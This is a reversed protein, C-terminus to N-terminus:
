ELVTVIIHFNLATSAWLHPGLGGPVAYDPFGEQLLVLRHSSRPFPMWPHALSPAFCKPQLCHKPTVTSGFTVSAMLISPWLAAQLTGLLLM